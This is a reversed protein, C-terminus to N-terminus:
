YSKHLYCWWIGTMATLVRSEGAFCRLRQFGVFIDLKAANANTMFLRFYKITVFTM